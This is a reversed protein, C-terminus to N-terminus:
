RGARVREVGVAVMLRRAAGPRTEAGIAAGRQHRLARAEASEARCQDLFADFDAASNLMPGPVLDRYGEVNLGREAEFDDLDPCYFGIHRDVTRM